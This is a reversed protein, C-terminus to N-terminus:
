VIQLAENQVTLECNPETPLVNNKDPWFMVLVRFPKNYYRTAIGAYESYMDAKLPKFIVEYDGSLIDGTKTNPEFVRGQKIEDAIDSLLAHMTDKNLGFIMIEPHNFSEEFGISYSFENKDFVYQCQWGHQEINNKLQDEPSM